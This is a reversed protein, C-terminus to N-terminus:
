VPLTMLSKSMVKSCHFCKVHGCCLNMNSVEPMRALLMSVQWSSRFLIFCMSVCQLVIEIEVDYVLGLLISLIIVGEGDSVHGLVSCVRQYYQKHVLLLWNFCCWDSSFLQQKM